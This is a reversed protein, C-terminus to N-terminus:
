MNQSKEIQVIKWVNEITLMQIGEDQLMKELSQPLKM